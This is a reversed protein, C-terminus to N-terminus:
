LSVVTGEENFEVELARLKTDFSTPIAPRRKRTGGRSEALTQASPMFRSLSPPLGDQRSADVLPINQGVHEDAASDLTSRFLMARVEEM